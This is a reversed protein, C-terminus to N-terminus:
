GTGAEIWCNGREGKRTAFRVPLFREITAINTSVQDGPSLTRIAGAGALAMPRRLQDALRRGVPAGSGLYDRMPKATSQGAPV